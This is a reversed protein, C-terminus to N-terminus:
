APLQEFHFLQLEPSRADPDTCATDCHITPVLRGVGVTAEFAGEAGTPSRHLLRVQHRDAGDSDVVEGAKVHQLWEWGYLIFAEREAPQCPQPFGAGGRYRMAINRVDASRSVIGDLTPVDVHAWFMGEPFTIATPAFRHGGTHSIRRVEAGEYRGQLQEYLRLGMAGCRRDRRGHTCVLVDQRPATDVVAGDVSEAGRILEACAVTLTGTPVALETREYVSFGDAPRRYRIVRARDPPRDDDPVVALVRWRQGNAEAAAVADRVEGLAVDDFIDRAWPLPWEVLLFADYHGASGIPDIGHSAFRSVPGAELTAVRDDTVGPVSGLRAPRLVM